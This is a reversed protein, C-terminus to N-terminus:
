RPATPGPEQMSAERVVAQAANSAEGFSFRIGSHGRKKGIFTANRRDIEVAYTQREGVTLVVPAKPELWVSIWNIGAAAGMLLMAAVDCVELRIRM